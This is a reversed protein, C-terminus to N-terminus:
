ERANVGYGPGGEVSVVVENANLRIAGILLHPTRLRVNVTLRNSTQACSASAGGPRCGGEVNECAAQVAIACASGNLTPAGGGFDLMAAGAQVGISAMAVARRQASVLMLGDMSFAMLTLFLPM